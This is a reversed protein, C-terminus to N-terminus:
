VLDFARFPFVALLLNVVAFAPALYPLTVHRFVEWTKATNDVM